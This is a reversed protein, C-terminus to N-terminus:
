LRWEQLGRATRRRRLLLVQRTRKKHWQQQGCYRQRQAPIPRDFGDLHVKYNISNATYGAKLKGVIDPEGAAAYLTRLDWDNHSTIESTVTGPKITGPWRVLCPVRFAGEWNTNKEYRFWTMAGDPWTNM